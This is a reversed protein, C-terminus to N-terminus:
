NKHKKRYPQFSDETKTGEEEQHGPADQSNNKLHMVIIHLGFNNIGSWKCVHIPM